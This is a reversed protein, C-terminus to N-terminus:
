KVGLQKLMSKLDDQYFPVGGRNNIGNILYELLKRQADKEAMYEKQSTCGFRNYPPCYCDRDKCEPICPNYPMWEATM